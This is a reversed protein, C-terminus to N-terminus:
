LRLGLVARGPGRAVQVNGARSRHTQRWAALPQLGTSHHATIKSLM